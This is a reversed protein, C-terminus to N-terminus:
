DHLCDMLNELLKEIHSTHLNSDHGCFYIGKDDCIHKRLTTAVYIEVNFRKEIHALNAVRALDYDAFNWHRSIGLIYLRTKSTLPVSDCSFNSETAIAFIRSFQTPTLHLDGDNYPFKTPVAPLVSSLWFSSVSNTTSEDEEDKLIVSSLLEYPEQKPYIPNYRSDPTMGHIEQWMNGDEDPIIGLSSDIIAIRNSNYYQSVYRQADPEVITTLQIRNASAVNM